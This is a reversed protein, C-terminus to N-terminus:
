GWKIEKRCFDPTRPTHNKLLLAMIPSIAAHLSSLVSWHDCGLSHRKRIHTIYRISPDLHHPGTFKLFHPRLPCLGLALTNPPFKNEPVAFGKVALWRQLVQVQTSTPVNHWHLSVNWKPIEFISLTTDHLGWKCRTMEDPYCKLRMCKCKYDFAEGTLWISIGDSDIQKLLSILERCEVRYKTNRRTKKKTKKTTTKGTTRNQM